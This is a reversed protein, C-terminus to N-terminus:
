EVVIKALYWKGDLRKFEMTYESFSDVWGCDLYAQGYQMEGWAQYYEEGDREEPGMAKFTEPKLIDAYKERQADSLKLRSTMFDADTSFQAIFQKFPEAGQNCPTSPSEMKKISAQIDARTQAAASLGLVLALALLLRKM